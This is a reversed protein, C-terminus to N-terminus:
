KALKARKVNNETPICLPNKGAGGQFSLSNGRFGEKGNQMPMM